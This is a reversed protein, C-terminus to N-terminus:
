GGTAPLKLSRPNKRLTIISRKRKRSQTYSCFFAATQVNAKQAMNDATAPM